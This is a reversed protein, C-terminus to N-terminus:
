GLNKKVNRLAAVQKESLEIGKELLMGVAREAREKAKATLTARTETVKARAASTARTAAEQAKAKLADVDVTVLKKQGM